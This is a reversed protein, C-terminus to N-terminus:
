ILGPLLFLPSSHIGEPWVDNSCWTDSCYYWKDFAKLYVGIRHTDTEEQPGWLVQLLLATPSLLEGLRGGRGRGHHGVVETLLSV